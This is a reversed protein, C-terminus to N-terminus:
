SRDSILLLRQFKDFARIRAEAHSRDVFLRPDSTVESALQRYAEWAEDLADESIFPVVAGM